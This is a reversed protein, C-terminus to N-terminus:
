GECLSPTYVPPPLEQKRHLNAKRQWRLRGSASLWSHFNALAPQCSSFLGIPAWFSSFFLRQISPHAATPVSPILHSSLLPHVILSNPSISVNNPFPPIAILTTSTLRMEKGERPRRDQRGIAPDMPFGPAPRLPASVVLRSSAM